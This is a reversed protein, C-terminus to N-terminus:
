GIWKRRINRLSVAFLMVCVVARLFFDLPLPLAAARRISGHLADAGYTLPLIYSFPRLWVPLQEIPFFLGRSINPPKLYYWRMDKALINWYAIGSKM